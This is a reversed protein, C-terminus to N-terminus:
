DMLGMLKFFKDRPVLSRRVVPVLYGEAQLMRNAERIYKRASDEGVQMLEIVEKTSLMLPYDERKKKM